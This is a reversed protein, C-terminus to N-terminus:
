PTDKEFGFHTYRPEVNRRDTGGQLTYGSAVWTHGYPAHARCTLYDGWAATTPSHTAVASFVTKWPGATDDRLGVVHSPHRGPGGYFATCGIEGRENPSVAPYAWANQNSWIDPEDVLQKTIENIRVVRVYPHPRGNRRGATWMFGIRSQAVWAGTIRPDVRGLWNVGNPAISAFNGDTWQGVTVDWWSIQNGADPWSFVRLQNTSIHSGFYMTQGAGQTLRISGNETTSWWNFGLTGANAITALPFKMVVARQWQDSANFVNFTVWLNDNTLAADPYDFWLNRWQGNLTGPAIDWWYWTGANFNANRTAAIRFVNSGNSRIYQLIWIWLERRRDHVVLQDCCFGGAASPLSNFPDVHTWAAGSDVSRSAYWNGSMFVQPGSTAVAPEGITSTDQSTAPDPLGVTRFVSLDNAAM